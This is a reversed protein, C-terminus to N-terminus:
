DASSTNVENYRGGTENSLKEMWDSSHGITVTHVRLKQSSTRNKNQNIYFSAVRDWDNYNTRSSNWCKKGYWKVWYTSYDNPNSNRWWRKKCQQGSQDWASFLNPYTSRKSEPNSQSSVNSFKPEGDSLFFLSTTEHDEFAADLGDWPETWGSPDINQIMEEAHDLAGNSGITVLQNEIGNNLEDYQWQRHNIGGRHSFFTIGVKTYPAVNKLDTLIQVLETKVSEMRTKKCIGRTITICNNMSGSADVVFRVTGDIKANFYIGELSLGDLNQRVLRKDARAFATMYIKQSSNSTAVYSMDVLNDPDENDNSAAPDEFRLVKRNNDTMFRIAPEQFTRYATFADPELSDDLVEFDVNLDALIEEKLKVREKKTVNDVTTPQDCEEEKKLCQLPAINDLILSIYPDSNKDYQGNVDLPVGCRVLAYGHKDDGSAQSSNTSLGYVVPNVMEAMKIGFVPRFVQQNQEAKSECYSVVGENPTTAKNTKSEHKALDTDPLHSPTDGYVLLHMSREVESRLLKIGNVTNQRANAKEASNNIMGSLSRLAVGSSTILLSGAVVAMVVEPITFGGESNKRNKSQVKTAYM